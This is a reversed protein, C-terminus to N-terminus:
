DDYEDFENDDEYITKLVYEETWHKDCNLCRVIVCMYIGSNDFESAFSISSDGCYPCFDSSELYRQKNSKFNSIKKNENLESMKKNENLESM